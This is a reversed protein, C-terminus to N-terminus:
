TRLLHYKTEWVDFYIKSSCHQQRKYVDQATFGENWLNCAEVLLSKQSKRNAEDFDIQNLPLIESLKSNLINNLIYDYRDHNEYICDIRIM